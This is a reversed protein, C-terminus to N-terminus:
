SGPLNEGSQLKSADSTSLTEPAAAPIAQYLTFSALGVATGEAVSKCWMKSGLLSAVAVILAASILASGAKTPGYM